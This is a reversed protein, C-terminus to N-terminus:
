SFSRPTSLQQPPTTFLQTSLYGAWLCVFSNASPESFSVTFTLNHFSTTLFLMLFFTVDAIKTYFPPSHFNIRRNGQEQM